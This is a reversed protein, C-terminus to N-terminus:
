YDYILLLYFLLLIINKLECPACFPCLNLVKTNKGKFLLITETKYIFDTYNHLLLFVM